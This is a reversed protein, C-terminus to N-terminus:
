TQLHIDLSAVLFCFLRGQCQGKWKWQSSSFWLPSLRSASLLTWGRSLSADTNVAQWPFSIGTCWDSNDCGTKRKYSAWDCCWSSKRSCSTFQAWCSSLLLFGLSPSFLILQYCAIWSCFLSRSRVCSEKWRMILVMIRSEKLVGHQGRKKGFLFDRCRKLTDRM